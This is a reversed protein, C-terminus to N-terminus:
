RSARELCSQAELGSLLRKPVFSHNHSGPWHLSAPVLDMVWGVEIEHATLASCHLPMHGPSKLSPINKYEFYVRCASPDESPRICELLAAQTISCPLSVHLHPDLLLQSVQSPTAMAAFETLEEHLLRTVNTGLGARMAPTRHLHARQEVRPAPDSQLHARQGGARMVSQAAQGQLISPEQLLAPHGQAGAQARGQPEISSYQHQLQPMGHQLQQQIYQGQQTPVAQGVTQWAHPTHISGPRQLHGQHHQFAQPQQWGGQDPNDQRHLCGQQRPYMPAQIHADRAAHSQMFHDHRNDNHEHYPFAAELPPLPPQMQAIIFPNTPHSTPVWSGTAPDLVALAPPSALRGQLPQESPGQQHGFRGEPSNPIGQVAPMSANSSSPHWSTYSRHQTQRQVGQPHAALYRQLWTTNLPPARVQADDSVFGLHQGNSAGEVPALGSGASATPESHRQMASAFIAPAKDELVELM